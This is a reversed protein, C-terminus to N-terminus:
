VNVTDFVRLHCRLLHFTRLMCRLLRILFLFLYFPQAIEHILNTLIPGAEFNRRWAPAFYDEDKRTTWQGSVAMLRGIRGNQIIDRAIQACPYYRRQHGVLVQCGQEAAYNTVEDAEKTTATIPKEVLVTKRYKLVMMLDAHHRETPTAIIVADVETKSLMSEADAFAELGRSEALKAAAPAPDAIAVLEILALEDIAKIHRTGISGAGILGIRFVDM